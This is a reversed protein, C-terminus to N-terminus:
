EKEVLLTNSVLGEKDGCFFLFFGFGKGNGGGTLGGALPANAYELFTWFPFGRFSLSSFSRSADVVAVRDGVTEGGEDVTSYLGLFRFFM